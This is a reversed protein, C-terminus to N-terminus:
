KSFMAALIVISISISILGVGIIALGAGTATESAKTFFQQLDIYDLFAKRGYHLPGMLLVAITINLIVGITAAGFPLHQILKSEPDSILLFLVVLLSGVGIFLDRFRM